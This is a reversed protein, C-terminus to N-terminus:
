KAQGWDNKGGQWVVGQGGFFSGPGAPLLTVYGM